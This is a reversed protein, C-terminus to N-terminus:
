QVAAAMNNVITVHRILDYLYSILFYAYVKPPKITEQMFGFVDEVRGQSDGLTAYHIEM